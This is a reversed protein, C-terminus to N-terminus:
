RRRCRQHWGRSREADLWRLRRPGLLRRGRRPERSGEVVVELTVLRAEEGEGPYATLALAAPMPATGLTRWGDKEPRIEVQGYPQALPGTVEIRTGPVLYEPTQLKVVIGATDDQIAILDLSGLGGPRSRSWAPLGFSRVPRWAGLRARDLHCRRANGDAEAHGHAEANGDAEADRHAQADRDAEADRHAEPHREPEGDREAEPTATPKPTPTPPPAVVEIEGAITVHIRYGGGSGSDRQGVPGTVDVLAGKVLGIPIASTAIVVRVSGSGDDLDIAVGDTVSDPAAGVFGETTVRRGEEDEDIEGTTLSVPTPLEDSAIATVDAQALRIVRQGFRTGLIGTARVVM